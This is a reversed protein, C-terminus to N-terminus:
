IPGCWLQGLLLDSIRGLIGVVGIHEVVLETLQGVLEDGLGLAEVGDVLTQQCQLRAPLFLAYGSSVVAQITRSACLTGHRDGHDHLPVQFAVLVPFLNLLAHANATAVTCWELQRFLPDHLADDPRVAHVVELWSLECTLMAVCLEGQVVDLRMELGLLVQLVRARLLFLRLRRRCVNLLLLPILEVLMEPVERVVNGHLVRAGQM